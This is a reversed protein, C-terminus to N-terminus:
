VHDVHVEIHIHFGKSNGAKIVSTASIMNLRSEINYMGMGMRGTNDAMGIGNDSYDIILMGNSESIALSVEDAEAHKITNTLLEQIVRYLALSTNMVLKESLAGANNNLNVELGSSISTRECLDALVEAFGFLELGSPSLNHSIHRVTDIATDTLQQCNTVMQQLVDTPCERAIKSIQVRLNALYGGVDDHLDSGIRRREDEQSQITSHLLQIQHALAADNMEQRQMYFKKQYRIYFLIITVCLLFAGIFGMFALLYVNDTGNQM